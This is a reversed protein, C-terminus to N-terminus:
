PIWGLETWSESDAEGTIIDGEADYNAL